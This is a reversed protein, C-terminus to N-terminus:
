LHVNMQITQTSTQTISTGSTAPMATATVTITYVGPQTGFDTCRTSCGNLVPLLCLAIALTLGQVLRKRKRVFFFGFASIVLLSLPTGFGSTAVFDSSGSGCASPAAPSLTFTTKGGGIPITTQAFTCTAGSPMGTCSLQVAQNFNNLAAISVGVSATNGVGVSIATPNVQLLFGTSASTLASTVLQQLPQSTSAAYTTSGAYVATIPHTGATLTSTTFTAYGSPNLATPTANLPVNPTASSADFFNITGTPTSIFTGTTAVAATFTVAQAVISPNASSNLLTVTGLPASPVLVVSQIFNASCIPLFDYTASPDILPTYCATINHQGFIFASTTYAVSTAGGTLPLVPGLLTTGDMFQVNGSAAAYQDGITATLTVSTGVTAPDNSSAVISTTPDPNIVVTYPQSCSDSFDGAPDHFCAKFTYTGADYITPLSCTGGAPYTLSCFTQTGGVPGTISYTVTGQTLTAPGATAVIPASISFTQGYFIPSPISTIATTTADPIVTIVSCIPTTVSLYNLPASPTFTVCVQQNAGVPLITSLAPTYNFTGAVPSGGYTATPAASTYPVTGYSITPPPATWILIPQAQIDITDSSATSIFSSLNYLSFELFKQVNTLTTNTGCEKPYAGSTTGGNTGPQEVHYDNYLVRGCQGNSTLSGGTLSSAIISNGLPAAPDISFTITVPDQTGALLPNNRKCTVTQTGTCSVWGGTADNFSLFKLGTPLNITLVLSNDVNTTSTNSVQILITDGADGPQFPATQNTYALAVTPTGAAGIPTDFTFQMSPDTAQGSSQNLNVWSVAPAYIQSTNVRIETLGVIPPPNSTLAGIYNLWNALITGEPFSTATNITAPLPTETGSLPGTYWTAVPNFTSNDQLWVYEFHTAFIRGSDNVYNTLNNADANVDADAASGQCGFMVLDFGYLGAGGNGLLTTETGTGGPYKSGANSDAPYLQIHGGGNPGSVMSDSIGIQRFICEINDADGTVVAIYPLDAISGDAQTGSVAPMTLGPYNNTGGQSISTTAYTYQRRWKGAQIVLTVNPTPLPGTVTINFTGDFATTSSGLVQTPVLDPQAGCGTQTSTPQNIGQTFTPPAFGPEVLFVLINPIPDGVLGNTGPAPGNPSYVKGTFTTTQASAVSSLVTLCVFAFLWRFSRLSPLMLVQYSNHRNGVVIRNLYGNTFSQNGQRHLIVPAL